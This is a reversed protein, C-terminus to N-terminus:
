AFAKIHWMQDLAGNCPYAIAQVEENPNGNPISLCRNSAPNRVTYVDSASGPARVVSWLQAPNGPINTYQFIPRALADVGNNVTLALWGSSDTALANRFRAYGKDVSFQWSQQAAPEGAFTRMARQVVRVSNHTTYGELAMGTAVNVIRSWDGQQIALAPAAPAIIAVTLGTVVAAAAAAFRRIM